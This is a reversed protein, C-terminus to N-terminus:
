PTHELDYLAELLDSLENFVTVTRGVYGISKLVQAAHDVRDAGIELVKELVDARADEIAQERERARVQQHDTTDYDM